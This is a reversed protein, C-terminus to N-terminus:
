KINYKILKSEFGNLNVSGILPLSLASSSLKEYILGIDNVYYQYLEREIGINIKGFVPRYPPMLNLLLLTNM